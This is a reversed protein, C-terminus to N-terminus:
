WLRVLSCVCLQYVDLVAGCLIDSIHRFLACALPVLMRTSHAAHISKKRPFGHRASRCADQLTQQQDAQTFYASCVVNPALWAPNIRGLFQLLFDLGGMSKNSAKLNCFIIQLIRIKYSVSGTLDTIIM